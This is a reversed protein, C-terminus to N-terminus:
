LTPLLWEEWMVQINSYQDGALLNTNKTRFEWGSLMVMEPLSTDGHNAIVAYDDVGVKLAAAYLILTSAAQTFNYIYNYVTFTAGPGALAWGQQRTGGTSSTSLQFQFGRILWLAGTPVFLSFETGTAPSTEQQQNISGRGSTADEFPSGPWSLARSGWVYGQILVAYPVPTGTNNRTLFVEVYSQGRQTVGSNNWWATVNLLFGETLKYASQLTTYPTQGSLTWQHTKINGEPDLFRASVVLSNGSSSSTWNIVISDDVGIYLDTPPPVRRAAFKVMANTGPGIDPLYGAERLQDEVTPSAPNLIVGM